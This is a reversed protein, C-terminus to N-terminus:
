IAAGGALVGADPPATLIKALARSSGRHGLAPFNTRFMRVPSVEAVVILDPTEIENRGFASAFGSLLDPLADSEAQAQRKIQRSAIKENRRPKRRLPGDRRAGATVGEDIKRHTILVLAPSIKRAVVRHSDVGL